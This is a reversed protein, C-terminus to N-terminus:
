EAALIRTVGMGTLLILKADGAGMGFEGGARM